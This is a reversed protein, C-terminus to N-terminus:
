FNCEFGAYGGHLLLSNNTEIYRVDSLDRVDQPLQNPALAVGAAAVGRYGISVNWCCNIQYNLGLDLEGIFALDTKNSWFNYDNGDYTFYGLTNSIRQHQSVHNGYVGFKSAARFKLRCSLQYDIAGNLQVGYLNNEIDIEHDLQREDDYIYPMSMGSESASFELYDDFRFYRLGVGFTTRFCHSKILCMPNWWPTHGLCGGPEQCCSDCGGGRMCFSMLNLEVNHFQWDRQLRHASSGVAYYNGNQSGTPNMVWQYDMYSRLNGTTIRSASSPYIGWYLLEVACTGCNFYKGARVEFGGSYQMSADKTDMVSYRAGVSDDYSLRTHSDADYDMILGSAGVFWGHSAARRQRKYLSFDVAGDCAPRAGYGTVGTGYASAPAPAPNVPVAPSTPYAQPVKGQPVAPQPAPVQAQGGM